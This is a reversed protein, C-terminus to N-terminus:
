AHGAQDKEQVAQTQSHLDNQLGAVHQVHGLSKHVIRFDDALLWAGEKIGGSSIPTARGFSTQQVAPRLEKGHCHKTWLKAPLKAMCEKAERLLMLDNQVPIAPLSYAPPREGLLM